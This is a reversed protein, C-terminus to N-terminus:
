ELMISLLKQSIGKTNYRSKILERGRKGMDERLKPNEILDILRSHWEEPTDALFGSEGHQIVERNMAINSSVVPIGIAMYELAKFACKYQNFHNPLLPYVGIDFDSIVNAIDEPDDWDISDILETQLNPITQFVEYLEPVGCAGIIKLKINYAQSISQLPTRLISILDEQYHKGNGIWGICITSKISTSKTSNIRSYNKLNIGSPILYVKPQFPRVYDVLAQSGAFVSNCLTALTRFNKLTVPSQTRSPADDIDLYIKKGLFRAWRALLIHYRSYTKQFIISDYQLMMIFAVLLLRVRGASAEIRNKIGQEQLAEAIWYGRVRSSAKKANGALLWLIKKKNERM